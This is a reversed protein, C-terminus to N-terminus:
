FKGAADVDLDLSKGESVVEDMDKADEYEAFWDPETGGALKNAIVMGLLALIFGPNSIRM